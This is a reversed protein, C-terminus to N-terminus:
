ASVPDGLTLRIRDVAMKLAATLDGAAKPDYVVAKVGDIDSPRKLDMRKDYVMICRERGILGIFMGLEFIVNDRPAKRFVVQKADEPPAATGDPEPYVRIEDDDGLVMLVFDSRAAIEELTEIITKSSPHFDEPWPVVEVSPEVSDLLEKIIQVV